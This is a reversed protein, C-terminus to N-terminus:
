GGGPVWQVLLPIAPTLMALDAFLRKNARPLDREWWELMLLVFASLGLALLLSDGAVTRTLLALATGAFIMAVPLARYLDGLPTDLLAAGGPRPLFDGSWRAVICLYYFFLLVFLLLPLLIRM